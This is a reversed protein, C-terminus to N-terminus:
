RLFKKWSFHLKRKVKIRNPHEIKYVAPSVYREKNGIKKVRISNNWTAKQIM